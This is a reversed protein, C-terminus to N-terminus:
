AAVEEPRDDLYRLYADETSEGHQRENAVSPSHCPAELAM